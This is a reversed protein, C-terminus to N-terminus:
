EDGLLEEIHKMCREVTDTKMKRNKLTYLVDRCNKRAVRLEEKSMVKIDKINFSLGYSKMDESDDIRSNISEVISKM